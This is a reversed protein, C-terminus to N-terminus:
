PSIRGIKNGSEETCWLFGDPGTTIGYPRSNATPILFETITEGLKIAGPGSKTVFLDAAAQAPLASGM